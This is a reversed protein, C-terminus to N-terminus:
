RTLCAQLRERAQAVHFAATGFAAANGLADVREQGDAESLLRKELAGLMDILTRVGALDADSSGLFSGVIPPAVRKERGLTRDFCQERCAILFSDLAPLFATVQDPKSLSTRLEGFRALAALTMRELELGYDEFRTRVLNLVRDFESVEGAPKSSGVIRSAERHRDQLRHLRLNLDSKLGEEILEMTEREDALIPHLDSLVVAEDVQKRAIRGTCRVVTQSRFTADIVAFAEMGLNDELSWVHVDYRRLVIGYPDLLVFDQLARWRPDTLEDRQMSLIPASTRGLEVLLGQPTRWARM